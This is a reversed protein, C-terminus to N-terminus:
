NQILNQIKNSEIKTTEEKIYWIGEPRLRNPRVM